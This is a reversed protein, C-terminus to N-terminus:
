RLAGHISTPPRDPAILVLGKEFWDHIQRFADINQSVSNSIFLQNRQTGQAVVVLRSREDGTFRDSFTVEDGDRSYLIVEDRGSVEVLREAVVESTTVSFSIEYIVDGILLEFSFSSPVIRSARIWDSGRSQYPAREKGAGRLGHEQCFALANLFSSKGSANGGYIAAIPLLKAEYEGAVALRERHQRERSAIMSFSVEDRFCMWNEISMRVIM